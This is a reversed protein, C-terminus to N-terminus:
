FLELVAEVLQVRHAKCLNETEAVQDQEFGLQEVDIGRGHDPGGGGIGVAQSANGLLVRLPECLKDTLGRM